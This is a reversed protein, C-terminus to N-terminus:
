ACALLAAEPPARRSEIVPEDPERAGGNDPRSRPVPGRVDACGHELAAFARGLNCRLQKCLLTSSLHKYNTAVFLVMKLISEFLVM